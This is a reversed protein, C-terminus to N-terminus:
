EFIGLECEDGYFYRVPYTYSKEMQALCALAEADEVRVQAVIEYKRSGVKVRVAEECTDGWYELKFEFLGPEREGLFEAFEVEFDNDLQYDVNAFKKDAPEMEHVKGNKSLLLFKEISGIHLKSM